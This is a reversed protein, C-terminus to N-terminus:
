LEKEEWFQIKASMRPSKNGKMSQVHMSQFDDTMENVDSNKFHVRNKEKFPVQLSPAQYQQGKERFAPVKLISNRQPLNYAEDVKLPSLKPSKKCMGTAHRHFWADTPVDVIAHIRKVKEDDIDEGYKRLLLRVLEMDKDYNSTTSVREDKLSERKVSNQATDEVNRNKRSDSEQTEQSPLTVSDQRKDCTKSPVNCDKEGPCSNENFEKEVENLGQDFPMEPCEPFSDDTGVISSSNDKNQIVGQDNHDSYTKLAASDDPGTKRNMNENDHFDLNWDNKFYKKDRNTVEKTKKKLSNKAANKETNKAANSWFSTINWADDHNTNQSTKFQNSPSKTVPDLERRDQKSGENMIEGEEGGTENFVNTEFQNPLSKKVANLEKRFSTMEKRLISAKSEYVSEEGNAVQKPRTHQLDNWVADVNGNENADDAVDMLFGSRRKKMSEEFSIKKEPDNRLGMALEFTSDREPVRTERKPEESLRKEELSQMHKTKLDNVVQPNLQIFSNSQTHDEEHIDRGHIENHLSFNTRDELQLQFDLKFSDFETAVMSGVGEIQRPMCFHTNSPDYM